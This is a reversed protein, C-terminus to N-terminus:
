LSEIISLATITCWKLGIFAQRRSLGIRGESVSMKKDKFSIGNQCLSPQVGESAGHPNSRQSLHLGEPASVSILHLVFLKSVLCRSYCGDSRCNTSSKNGLAKRGQKAAGTVGLFKFLICINFGDCTVDDETLIMEELKRIRHFIDLGSLAGTNLDTELPPSGGSLSLLHLALIFLFSLFSGFVSSGFERGKHGGERRGGRNPFTWALPKGMWGLDIARREWDVQAEMRKCPEWMFFQLCCYGIDQWQCHGPIQPVQSDLSRRLRSSFWGISLRLHIAAHHGPWPLYTCDLRYFAKPSHGCQTRTM